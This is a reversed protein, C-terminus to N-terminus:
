QREPGPLALMERPLALIEKPKYPSIGEIEKTTNRNWPLRDSERKELLKLYLRTNVAYVKKLEEALTKIIPEKVGLKRYHECIEKPDFEKAHNSPLSFYHGRHGPQGIEVEEFGRKFSRAIHYIDEWSDETRCYIPIKDGEDNTVDKFVFNIEWYIHDPQDYKVVEVREALSYDRVELTPNALSLDLKGDSSRELNPNLYIELGGFTKEVLRRMSSLQKQKDSLTQIETAYETLLRDLEQNNEQITKPM